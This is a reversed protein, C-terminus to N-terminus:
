DYKLIDRIAREMGDEQPLIEKELAGYGVPCDLAGVITPPALLWDFCHQSVWSAIEAGFGMTRSAGHVVLLRGTKEISKSVTEKDWPQLTRLDILHVGIGEGRLRDTVKALMHVPIGWTVCTLDDGERVIRAKGFPITYDDGPYPEALDMRRYLVKPELFVVPDDARLATRLLGVADSPTSPIVVWAGPVVYNAENSQSHWIAGIGGTYGQSPVRIVVPTSWAGASRWRTTVTEARFHHYAPWFYDDFQVEPVPKLGRAAAGNALGLILGEALPSNFCRRAGFARQLNATIGGTRGGFVGGKGSVRNIDEPLSVDAVDEGHTFLRADRAFESHLCRNIAKLLPIPEGQPASAVDLTKSCPDFKDSYLYTLASGKPPYPVTNTEIQHEIEERAANMEATVEDRIANLEAASAIGEELLFEPYTVLPDTQQKAAIADATRYLGEDDECSHGRLRIVMGHLLAPKRERRIFDVAERAAAASKIPDLGDVKGMWMLGKEGFGSLLDSVSGGATGESAHTSIAWQNDEIAFLVPCPHVPNAAFNLAEWFEGESTTGDGSGVYVIEDTHWLDRRNQFERISSYYLSAYGMGVGTLYQTGVPSSGTFIRKDPRGFHYPLQRGKSGPDETSGLAAALIDKPTMGCALAVALDRYHTVIWDVGPKLNLAIGSLFAEHGAAGIYFHSRGMRQWREILSDLERARFMLAYLKLLDAKALGKKQVASIESVKQQM